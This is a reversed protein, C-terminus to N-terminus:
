LFVNYIAFMSRYNKSFEFAPCGPQKEGGNVYFDVHGLPEIFGADGDILSGGNTHIIDVFEADTVDLRTDTDNFTFIGFKAPDM